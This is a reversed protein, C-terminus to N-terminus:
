GQLTGLRCAYQFQQVLIDDAKAAGAFWSDLREDDSPRAGEPDFKLIDIGRAYDAAYIYMTGDDAVHWQSQGAITAATQFFGVETLAGTDLGVHFVHVGHEYWSAAVYEGSVDFWHGSCGSAALAPSGDAWTGSAPHFVDLQVPARGKDFDRMDWTSLAGSMNCSPNINTESNAVLLEGARLSGEPLSFRDGADVVPEDFGDTLNDANRSVFDLASPRINNHQLKPDASQRRLGEALLEPNDYGYETGDDGTHPRPDLVLRPQSDSIVYGAEDRHLAHRGGVTDGSGDVAWSGAEKITNGGDTFTADLIKGTSTYLWTCGPDACETTHTSGAFSAVKVPNTLDSTDFVHVGQNILIPAPLGGDASIVVRSGDAAVALDENQSHPFPTTSVHKPVSPDSVDYISLGKEGTMFYYTTDEVDIFKGGVGPADVPITAVYEINESIFVGPGPVDLGLDVSIPASIPAETPATFPAFATAALASALFIRPLPRTM